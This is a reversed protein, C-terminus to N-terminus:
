NRNLDNTYEGAAISLMYVPVQPIDGLGDIKLLMCLQKALCRFWLNRAHPNECSMEGIYRPLLWAAVTEPNRYLKQHYGFFGKRLNDGQKLNRNCFVSLDTHRM